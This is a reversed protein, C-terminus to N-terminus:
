WIKSYIESANQSILEWTELIYATLSKWYVCWSDLWITNERIRLWDVARHWYIIKKDWKYYEYWPKWNYDRIRTIEDIDHSELSKWDIIWAHVLIFNDEEIYKPLSKLYDLIKPKEELKKKLKKKLKKFTKKNIEDYTKWELYRLFNIEHNWVVSHFQKRNKYLLKLVKYSKPWRNILDWVFFVRDDHKVDLKKLLKKLEKYCWQVDWIFINRWKSDEDM